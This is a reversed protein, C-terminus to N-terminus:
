NKIKLVPSNAVDEIQLKGNEIGLASRQPFLKPCYLFKATQYADSALQRICGYKQFRRASTHVRLPLRLTRGLAKTRIALDLDEFLDWNQFGGLEKFVTKRVFMAQDGFYWSLWRTRQDACYSTLQLIPNNPVFRRAFCGGLLTSTNLVEALKEIATPPLQTDAHLFLLYPANAQEAGINMQAARQRQASHLLTVHENEELIALSGDTSGADVAIVEAPATQRAIAALTRPLYEAENYVPIIIAVHPM